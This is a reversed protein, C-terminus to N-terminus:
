LCEQMFNWTEDHNYSVLFYLMYFCCFARSMSMLVAVSQNVWLIGSILLCIKMWRRKAHSRSGAEASLWAVASTWAICEPIANLESVIKKQINTTRRNQWDSVSSFHSLLPLQPLQIERWKISRYEAWKLSLVGGGCVACAM